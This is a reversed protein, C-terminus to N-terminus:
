KTETIARRLIKRLEAQGEEDLKAHSVNANVGVPNGAQGGLDIQQKDGMTRPAIKAVMKLRYDAEAKALQVAAPGDNFDTGTLRDLGGYVLREAQREKARQIKALFDPHDHQWNFATTSCPFEPTEDCVRAM